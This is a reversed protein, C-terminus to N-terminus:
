GIMVFDAVEATQARLPVVDTAEFGRRMEESVVVIAGSTRMADGLNAVWDRWGDEM